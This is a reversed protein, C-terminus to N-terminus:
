EGVKQVIKNIGRRYLKYTYFNIPNKALRNEWFSM